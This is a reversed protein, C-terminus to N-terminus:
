KLSLLIIVLNLVAQARLLPFTNPLLEFGSGQIGKTVPLATYHVFYVHLRSRESPARLLSWRRDSKLPLSTSYRTAVGGQWELDGM